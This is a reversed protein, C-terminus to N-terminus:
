DGGSLFADLRAAMDEDRMIGEVLEPEPMIMNGVQDPIAANAIRKAIRISRWNRKRLVSIREEIRALVKDAPEVHQVVGAALCSAADYDEAYFIMEKARALGVTHVLKPTSGYTLFMGRKTEPLNLVAHDAMVRFDCTMAIAVGAGYASGRIAAYSVQEIASLQAMMQHAVNQHLRMVELDAVMERILGLDAGASFYKGQHDLILFHIDSRRRLYGALDVLDQLLTTSVTNFADPRCLTATITDDTESLALTEYEPLSM